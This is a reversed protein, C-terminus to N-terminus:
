HWWLRLACVETVSMAAFAHELEAKSSPQRRFYCQQFETTPDNFLEPAEGHVLCCRMCMGEEVYFDGPANEPVRQPLHLAMATYRIVIQPPWRSAGLFVIGFVFKRRSAPGDM